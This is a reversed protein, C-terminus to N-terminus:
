RRRRRRFRGALDIPQTRPGGSVGFDLVVPKGKRMGWNFRHVDALVVGARAASELAAVLERGKAACDDFDVALRKNASRFQCAEDMIQTLEAPLKFTKAPALSLLVRRRKEVWASLERIPEVYEMGVYKDVRETTIAYVPEPTDRPSLSGDANIVPSLGIQGRLKAVDYVKVVGAVKKGLLQRAAEADRADTTFKVVKTKPSSAHEYASAFSGRGLLKGAPFRSCQAETLRGDWGVVSEGAEVRCSIEKKKPM